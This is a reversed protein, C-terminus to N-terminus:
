HVWIKKTKSYSGYIKKSGAKKYARVKVYYNKNKSLKKFTKSTTKNSKITATKKGKSFKSNKAIVVQYGSAKKDRKWSAKLTRCKKSVACPKSMKKPKVTINIRKTASNCSDTASATITVTTKGPGKITVKGSGSVTVVKKNGSKYSLQGDGSTKAHLNFAKNGYTKKYSKATITQDKKSVPKPAPAAIEQYSLNLTGSLQKNNLGTEVTFPTSAISKGATKLSGNEYTIGPALNNPQNLTVPVSYGSSANGSLSLAVSQNTGDFSALNNLGTLDLSTLASKYCNLRTLNKLGSVNLSSMAPNQSCDLSELNKLGSVDLTKLAANNYCALGTMNRFIEIGTLDTITNQSIIALKKANDIEAQTLVGDGAGEPTNNTIMWDRFNEDPFSDADINIGDICKLKLTGSLQKGKMGTEVTFTTDINNQSTTKLKGNEYSVTTALNTPQNLDIAVSYGSSANGGLSLALSQDAGNFSALNNLGTLDLSTLSSNNCSLTNLASCGSVKLSTLSPNNSCDLKQLDQFGSFDLSKLAKNGTCTLDTLNPFINIGTLDRVKATDCIELTTVANIEEQTLVGDDAGAPTNNTIMWDRFNEDPFLDAEINIGDVCNLTLTGSLEYKKITGPTEVAFPTAFNDQKTAMKLRGNEYTVGEELNTPWSSSFDVEKSYGSSADGGLSLTVSQNDGKFSTLENLGSLSLSTLASGNCFM